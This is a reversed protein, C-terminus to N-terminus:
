RLACFVACVCVCVCVSMTRVCLVCAYYACVFLCVCLACVASVCVVCVVIFLKSSCRPSRMRAAPGLQPSIVKLFMSNCFVVTLMCAGGLFDTRSAKSLWEVTFPGRSAVSKSVEEVREVRESSSRSSKKERYVLTPTMYHRKLM